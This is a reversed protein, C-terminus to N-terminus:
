FKCNSIGQSTLNTDSLKMVLEELGALREELQNSSRVLRERCNSSSQVGVLKVLKVLKM